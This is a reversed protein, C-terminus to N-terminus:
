RSTTKANQALQTMQAFGINLLYRLLKNTMWRKLLGKNQQLLRIKGM